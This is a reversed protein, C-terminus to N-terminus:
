ETWQSSVAPVFGIFNNDGEFVYIPQLFNQPQDADYYALSVKRILINGQENEGLNAVYGKGGQMEQWAAQSNKLPYTAFTEREIPYYSYNIEVIRRGLTRIGSFLFSVLSNKPNPPLIKLGDLDARFLNARVFDAESLSAAPLLNPPSYKLYVFEASGTALDDALLGQADLFNKAEQAAQQNAPLDQSNIAEADNEYAYLLHFNGTNINIDLTTLPTEGNNWRYITENIQQPESSFGLKKAQQTTRQLALLNPGEKPIFFVKAIEPLKPLGGQITELRLNLKVDGTKNEPFKLAPLKGFSVTPPPPPPPNLKQWVSSFLRLSFRLFIIAILLFAGIKLLRRTWYATQTLNLM